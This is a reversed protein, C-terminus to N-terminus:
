GHAQGRRRRLWAAVAPPIIVAAIIALATLVGLATQATQDSALSVTVGSVPGNAGPQVGGGTGVGGSGAAGTGSGTGGTSASATAHAGKGSGSGKGSGNGGGSGTQKAKGGVVTCNLPAGLKNCPSPYPADLLLTLKGRTFTPNSCGALSNLNPGAIHGPIHDAQLLGGQVLNLPLPAYGLNRTYNYSQGACLLFDTFTSVTRGQGPTFNTPEKTKLRPVILYSYSSLPYSRPDKFTYVRDLNQQLFNPSSKVEDIQAQTLAVAVNSASPQTWYGDPNLVSVVPYRAGLAYAYEDYGIAGNAYSSTIYNAM